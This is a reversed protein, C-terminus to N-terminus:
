YLCEALSRNPKMWSENNCTPCRYKRRCYNGRMKPVFIIEQQTSQFCDSCWKKQSEM